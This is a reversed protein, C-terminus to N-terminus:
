LLEYIYIMKMKYSNLQNKILEIIQKMDQYLKIGEEINIVNKIQENIKELQEFLTELNTDKNTDNVNTIDNNLEQEFTEIQEESELLKTKAKLTM